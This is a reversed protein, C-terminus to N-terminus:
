TPIESLLALGVSFGFLSGLQRLRFDEQGESSCLAKYAHVFTNDYGLLGPFGHSVRGVTPGLGLCRFVASSATAQKRGVGPCSKKPTYQVPFPKKILTLGVRSQRAM